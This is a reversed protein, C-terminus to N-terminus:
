VTTNQKEDVFVKTRAFVGCITETRYVLAFDLEVFLSSIILLKM